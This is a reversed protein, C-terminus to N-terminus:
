DVKKIINPLSEALKTKCKVCTNQLVHEIVDNYEVNLTNHTIQTHTSLDGSIKAITEITKRIESNVSVWANILKPDSSGHIEKTIEEAKEKETELLQLLDGMKDIFDKALDPYQENVNSVVVANVHRMHKYWKYNDIKLEHIIQEKTKEKRTYALEYEEIDKILCVQCSGERNLIKKMKVYLVSTM